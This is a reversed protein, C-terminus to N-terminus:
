TALADLGRHLGGLHILDCEIGNHVEDAALSTRRQVKLRVLQTQHSM